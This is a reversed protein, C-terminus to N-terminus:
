HSSALSPPPLTAHLKKIYNTLYALWKISLIVCLVYNNTFANAGHKIKAMTVTTLQINLMVVPPHKKLGM